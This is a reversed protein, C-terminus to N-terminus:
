GNTQQGPPAQSAAFTQLFAKAGEPTEVAKSHVPGVKPPLTQVPGAPPLGEPLEIGPEVNGVAPGPMGQPPVQSTGAPASAAQAAPAAHRLYTLEYATARDMTQLRQREGIPLAAIFNDGQVPDLDPYQTQLAELARQERVEALIQQTQQSQQQIFQGMGAVM